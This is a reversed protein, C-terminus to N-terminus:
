FSNSRCANRRCADRNFLGSSLNIKTISSVPHHDLIVKVTAANYLDIWYAKQEQRNLWLVPTEQLSDLYSELRQRDQATVGGYNLLNIGSPHNSVLYSDLFRDWASHDL